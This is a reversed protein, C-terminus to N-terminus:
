KSLLANTATSVTIIVRQTYNFKPFLKVVLETNKVMIIRIKM